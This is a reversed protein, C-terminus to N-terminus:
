TPTRDHHPLSASRTNRYVEDIDLVCKISTLHVRGGFEGREALAWTGDARPRFVEVLRERHSVIVYERLSAIGQYHVFKQGRDYRESSSSTIEFLVIPNVLACPDETDVEEEGCAVTLDAYTIISKGRVRVRADSSFTSCPGDRLQSAVVAALNTGIRAHDLTGGAMARIDGDIFEHKVNVAEDELRVYDKITYTWDMRELKARKM